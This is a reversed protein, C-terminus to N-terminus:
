FGAGAFSTTFKVTAIFKVEKHMFCKIVVIIFMEGCEKFKIFGPISFEIGPPSARNNFSFWSFSLISFNKRTM